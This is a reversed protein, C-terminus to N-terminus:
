GGPVKETGPCPPKRVKPTVSAAVAAPDSIAIPHSRGINAVLASSRATPCTRGAISDDVFVGIQAVFLVVAVLLAAFASLLGRAIRNNLQRFSPIQKQLVQAARLQHWTKSELLHGDDLAHEIEGRGIVIRGDRGRALFLVRLSLAASVAVAIVALGLAIAALPRGVSGLESSRQLLEDAQSAGLGLIVGCFGLLWAARQSLSDARRREDQLWHDLQGLIAEVAGPDPDVLHEDTGM